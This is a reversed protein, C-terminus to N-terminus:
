FPKAGPVNKMSQAAEKADAPENGKQWLEIGKMALVGFAALAGAFGTLLGFTTGPNESAFRMIKMFSSNEEVKKALHNLGRERLVEIVCVSLYRNIFQSFNPYKEPNFNASSTEIQAYAANLFSCIISDQHNLLANNDDKWELLEVIKHNVNGQKDLLDDCAIKALNKLLKKINNEDNKDIADPTSKFTELSKEIDACTEKVTKADLVDFDNFVRPAGNEQSLFSHSTKKYSTLKTSSVNQLLQVFSQRSM